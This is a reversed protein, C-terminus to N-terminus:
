RSSSYHQLILLLESFIKSRSFLKNSFEFANNSLWSLFSRNEYVCKFANFFSLSSGPEVLIGSHMHAISENLGPINSGITPTANSAAEIV